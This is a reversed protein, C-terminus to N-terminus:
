LVESFAREEEDGAMEVAQVVMQEKIFRLGIGQVLLVKLVDDVKGM